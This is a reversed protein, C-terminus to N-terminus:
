EFDLSIMQHVLINKTKIFKSDLSFSSTKNQNSVMWAGNGICSFRTDGVDGPHLYNQYVGL